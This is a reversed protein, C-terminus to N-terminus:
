MSICRGLIYSVVLLTRHGIRGDKFRGLAKAFREGTMYFTEIVAKIKNRAVFGLMAHHVKRSTVLSVTMTYGNLSM